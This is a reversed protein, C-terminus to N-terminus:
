PLSNGDAKLAAKIKELLDSSLQIQGTDADDRFIPHYKDVTYVEVIKEYGEGTGQRMSRILRDNCYLKIVTGGYAMKIGSSTAVMTEQTIQRILDENTITTEGNPTEIVVRDVRDMDWKDFVVATCGLNRFDDIHIAMFQSAIIIGIVLLLLIGALITIVRHRRIFAGLNHM